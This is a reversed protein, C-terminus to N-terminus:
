VHAEKKLRCCGADAKPSVKVQYGHLHNWCDYESTLDPQASEEIYRLVEVESEWIAMGKIEAVAIDLGQEERLDIYWTGKGAFLGNLQREIITYFPSQTHERIFCLDLTFESPM